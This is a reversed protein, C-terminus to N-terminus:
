SGRANLLRDIQATLSEILRSQESLAAALRRQDEEIQELRAGASRSLEQLAEDTRRSANLSTEADSALREFQQLLAREFTTLQNM